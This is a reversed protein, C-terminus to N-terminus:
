LKLMLGIFECIEYKVMETNKIKSVHLKRDNLHIFFIVVVIFTFFFWFSCIDNDFCFRIKDKWIQLQYRSNNSNHLPTCLNDHFLHHLLLYYPWCSSRVFFYGSAEFSHLTSCTILAMSPQWIGILPLDFYGSVYTLRFCKGDNM